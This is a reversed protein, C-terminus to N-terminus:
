GHNKQIEKLQKFALNREAICARLQGELKGFFVEDPQQRIIVSPLQPHYLYLDVWRGGTVMSEMMTQSHFSTPAKGTKQFYTISKFHEKAIQCKIELAGDDGVLGDPSVLWREDDDVCMGVETVVQQTRMQYDLRAEEEMEKGRKMAWSGGFTELEAGAYKECALQIAYESMSKSLQGTSSVLKSANSGSPKGARFEWWEPSYQPMELIKM